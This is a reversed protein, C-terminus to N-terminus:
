STLRGTGLQKTHSKHVCASSRVTGRCCAAGVQVAAEPHDGYEQAVDAACGRVGGHARVTLRIAAEAVDYAPRSGTALASTFLAETRAAALITTNIILM